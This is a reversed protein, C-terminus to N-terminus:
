SASAVALRFSRRSTTPPAACIRRCASAPTRTPACHAGCTSHGSSTTAKSWTSGSSVGRGGTEDALMLLTAQCRQPDIDLGLQTLKVSFIAMSGSGSLEKAVAVYHTATENAAATDTVNEGLRTLVVGVGVRQLEAAAALADELREGPMFRNVAGDSL